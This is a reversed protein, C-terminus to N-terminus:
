AKEAFKAAKAHSLRNLRTDHLIANINEQKTNLTYLKYNGDALCNENEYEYENDDEDLSLHAASCFSAIQILINTLSHGIVGYFNNYKCM